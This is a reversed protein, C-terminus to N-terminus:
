RSVERDVPDDTSTRAVSLMVVRRQAHRAGRVDGSPAPRAMRGPRPRSGSRRACREVVHRVHRGTFHEVQQRCSTGMVAVQANAHARIAPFLGREGAARSAEYHEKEYGYAGAMGCCAADAMEAEYGAV